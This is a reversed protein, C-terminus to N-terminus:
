WLRLRSLFMCRFVACSPWRCRRCIWWGPKSWMLCRTVWWGHVGDCEDQQYGCSDQERYGGEADCRSDVQQCGSQEAPDQALDDRRESRRFRLFSRVGPVTTPSCRDYKARAVCALSVRVVWGVGAM